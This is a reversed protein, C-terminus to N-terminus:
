RRPSKRARATVDATVAISAERAAEAIIAVMDDLNREKMRASPGTVGISYLVGFPELYVPCAVSFIGEDIEGDCTSYGSKRVQDLVTRLTARDSSTGGGERDLWHDVEADDRFALIARSSSCRDLPREGLGPFIHARDRQSPVLADIIAVSGCELKACFATEGLDMTLRRLAPVFAHAQQSALLRRSLIDDLAPGLEYQGPVTQHLYGYMMDAPHTKQIHYGLPGGWEDIRIGKRLDATDMGHWPNSIRDPDIMQIALAYNVGPRDPLYLPLAAGEGVTIKTRYFLRTLDALNGQRAADIDVSDAFAHFKSQTDRSWQDAEQKSIGLAKYDPIPHLTAGTAVVMELQGNVGSKAVPENRTLDRARSDITDKEPLLDTDASGRSPNWSRMDIGHSAAKYASGDEASASITVRRLPQGDAGLIPSLAAPATM